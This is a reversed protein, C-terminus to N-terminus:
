ESWITQLQNLLAQFHADERVFDFEQSMEFIQVLSQKFYDTSQIPEQLEVHDFLRNGQLMGAINKRSLDQL